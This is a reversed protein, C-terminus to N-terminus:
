LSIGHVFFHNGRYTLKRDKAGVCFLHGQLELIGKMGATQWVFKFLGLVKDLQKTGHVVMNEQDSTLIRGMCLHHKNYVTDGYIGGHLDVEINRVHGYLYFLLLTFLCRSSHGLSSSLKKQVLGQQHRTEKYGIGKDILVDKIQSLGEKMVKLKEVHYFLAKEDKLYGILDNFMELVDEWKGLSSPGVSKAFELQMWSVSDHDYSTDRDALFKSCSSVIQQGMNMEMRNFDHNLVGMEIKLDNIVEKLAGTWIHHQTVQPCITFRVLKRQQASIDLFNGVTTLSDVIMSDREYNESFSAAISTKVDVSFGAINERIKQQVIPSGIFIRALSKLSHMKHALHDDIIIAGDNISKLRGDIMDVDRLEDAWNAIKLFAKNYWEIPWVEENIGRSSHYLMLNLLSAGKKWLKHYKAGLVLKQAVRFAM